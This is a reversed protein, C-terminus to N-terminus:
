IEPNLNKHRPSSTAVKQQKNSIACSHSWPVLRKVLNPVSFSVMISYMNM